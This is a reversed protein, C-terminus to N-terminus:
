YVKRLPHEDVDALESTGTMRKGYVQALPLATVGHLVISMMVTLCVVAFIEDRHPLDFETLVLLGFLISALGRPGFWGVFLKTDSQFGSGALSLYVPLMRLLTLALLGYIWAVPKVQDISPWVMLTVVPWRAKTTWVAVSVPCVGTVSLVGSARMVRM